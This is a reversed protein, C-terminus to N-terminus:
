NLSKLTLSPRAQPIKIKSCTRTRVQEEFSGTYLAGALSPHQEVTTTM